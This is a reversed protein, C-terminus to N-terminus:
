RLIWDRLINFITISFLISINGILIMNIFSVDQTKIGVDIVAKSIFPLVGQLLTVVLMIIFLLSFSRKYPVFYNLMNLLSKSHVRRQEATQKFDAMPEVALLVGTKEKKKYWGKKFEDHTYKILGKSPDSVYVHKKTTHYM